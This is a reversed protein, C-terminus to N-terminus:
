AARAPRGALMGAISLDEDLAPWHLGMPSLEVDHLDSGSAAVLRPYWSLPTAIRRGDALRVIMEGDRFEVAVPRLTGADIELIPM